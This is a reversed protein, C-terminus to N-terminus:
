EFRVSIAEGRYTVTHQPEPTFSFGIPKEATVRVVQFTRQRLMGPFEGERAGIALTRTADDWQLPIRAFAGKEYSYTLGDDEYFTFAGNAGAYIYLTIPDAPKESTHQIEPGFPVISGARVHLPMSDYPAPVVITQGGALQKGTWFDYWVAGGPLYVHRERALHTTVPSVLFAPGFLYQDVTDRATGDGRFDMVLPRMFTGHNRTVHGSLSYVYPLLRYRLRDFKLQAQYAPHEEGGFEWMERFPFEGHVRLLPVFAGFQFWRTNLERWEEVDEARTNQKPNFRTPVSFGGIDMTWYPIGSLALGLGASIQKQLATWTSTIDGSWTAAAYRQSGAFASRTLIFVRQDPASARQGEYVAQSQALPYANLVWIGNGGASPQMYERQGSLDPTPLLDPETADLWWADVGRKFLASDVQSWFLQRAAPNLADYYTYKFGIWDKSGQTLNPQYLFGASQMADFNETGPYFKGWVSIMLRAHYQEHLTKIWGDPDPFREKEFAHSGWADKPWYFWDQVITDFPIKRQRFGAVVDTVQQAIEYRQRSQWLGFAWRPMMPVAGTLERYGAIVQDLEPGYVFYYDLGRAAESWLSTTDREAAPAPTKWLFRFRRAGQDKTWELRIRHRQGADLSVRAFEDGPLWNQRWHNMVLRDDIWLKVGGDCYVQFTHTGSEAPQVFGEWRVGVNGRPLAPHVSDNAGRADAPVSFALSADLRTAVSQEFRADGFYTGTLGGPNGATDLLQSAPPPEPQRLDGFRTFGNNDWLVGYGRSSVFFPVAVETNRQWLDLDRGKLDLVGLQNQGLGYLAEDSTQEWQQRAQLVKEGLVEASTLSRGGAREALITQGSADLFTVRGTARDVRAQLRATKLTVTADDSMLEWPTSPARASTPLVMLSPRTFFADDPSAAVRLVDETCVQVKLTYDPFRLSIGDGSRSFDAARIAASFVLISAVLSRVPLTCRM